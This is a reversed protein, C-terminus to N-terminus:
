EGGGFFFSKEFHYKKPICSYRRRSTNRLPHVVIDLQIIPLETTLKCFQTGLVLVLKHKSSFLKVYFHVVEHQLIDCVIFSIFHRENSLQFVVVSVALKSVLNVISQHM